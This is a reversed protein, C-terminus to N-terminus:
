VREKEEADEMGEVGVDSRERLGLMELKSVIGSV